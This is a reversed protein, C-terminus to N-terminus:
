VLVFALCKQSAFVLLEIKARILLSSLVNHYIHLAATHTVVCFFGANLSPLALAVTAM